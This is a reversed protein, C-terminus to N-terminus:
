ISASAGGSLFNSLGPQQPLQFARSLTPKRLDIDMLVVKYDRMALSAALNTSISSKGESPNASCVMIIQPPRGSLSLMVSAQVQHIAESMMSKPQSVIELEVEKDKGIAPKM